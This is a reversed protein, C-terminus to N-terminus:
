PNFDKAWPAPEPATGDELMATWEEDTLRNSMPGTFEYHEFVGGMTIYKGHETPVVVMIIRVPGVAEQLVEEMNPDTHVDSVLITKTDEGDGMKNLSELTGYFYKLTARDEDSLSRGELQDVSIRELLALTSAYRSLKGFALESDFGLSRLGEITADVMDGLRSYLVPVPEVYVIDSPSPHMDTLYTTTSQKRYLITDHTLQTWSAAQANLEKASWARTQMFSPGREEQVSEHLSKLSHLWSSYLTSSWVNDPYADFEGRLDTVQRELDPAFTKFDERNWAEESGLVAFVDICSPMLRQEEISRNELKVKAYVCEQFIYSDPVYRQGFVRMGSVVEGEEVRDSSIKPPRLEGIATQLEDLRDEDFLSTFGEDMVGMVEDVAGLIDQPTLDDPQGVMFDIVNAMSTYAEWAQGDNKLAVAALVARRTEDDFKGEDNFICQFTIRGFWMMGKFYQGLEDSRTYHGRPKYQTFDEEQQFGPIRMYGAAADIMDIIKGIDHEAYDPVDANPDFIRLAVGFFVVNARALDQGVFPESAQQADSVWMLRRAMTKAHESLEDQELEILVGEFIHHYADLVSDSTIFTPKHSKDQISEYAAAFSKYGGGSKALGVMGNALLFRKQADTLTFENINKIDDAALPLDYDLPNLEFSPDTFEVSFPTSLGSGVPPAPYPGGEDDPEDDSPGLKSWVSLELTEGALLYWGGAVVMTAVVLVAVLKLAIEKSM